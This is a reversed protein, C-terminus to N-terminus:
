SSKLCGYHILIGNPHRVIASKGIRKNCEKCIQEENLTFRKNQLEIKTQHIQLQLAVMLHTKIQMDHKSRVQRYLMNEFFQSLNKCKMLEAPLLELTKSSGIEASHANLLRISAGIRIEEYDSNLYIQLLQNYVQKSDLINEKSFINACYAEAKETDNLINVYINLAEHHKGMRGLVIAREEAYNEFDLKSLAYLPEYNNTETLFYILMQKYTKLSMLTMTSTQLTNVYNNEIFARYIDILLNNLSTKREDWIYICYQLYIRVLNASLDKPEITENLFKAVMEHNLTKTSDDDEEFEDNDLEGKLLHKSTSMQQKGKQM